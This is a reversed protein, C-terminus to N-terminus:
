LIYAANFSEEMFYRSNLKLNLLHGQHFESWPRFWIIIIGIQGLIRFVNGRNGWLDNLQHDNANMMTMFEENDLWNFPFIFPQFKKVYGHRLMRNDLILYNEESVLSMCNLHNKNCCVNCLVHKSHSLFRSKCVKCLIMITSKTKIYRLVWISTVHYYWSMQSISEYMNSVSYAWWAQNPAYM